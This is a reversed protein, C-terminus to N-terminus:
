QGATILPTEAIGQRVAATDRRATTTTTQLGVAAMQLLRTLALDLPATVTTVTDLAMAANAQTIAATELYPDWAHPEAPVIPVVPAMLLSRARQSMLSATPM